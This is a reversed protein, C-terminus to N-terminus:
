SGRERRNREVVRTRRRGASGHFRVVVDIPYILAARADFVRGAFLRVGLCHSERSLVGSLGELYELTEGGHARGLRLREPHVPYDRRMDARHVAGHVPLAKDAPMNLLVRIIWFVKRSLVQLVLFEGRWWRLRAQGHRM